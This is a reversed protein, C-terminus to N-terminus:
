PSLRLDNSGKKTTATNNYSTDLVCVCVCVIVFILLLIYLLLIYHCM